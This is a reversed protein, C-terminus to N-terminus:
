RFVCYPKSSDATTNSETAIKREYDDILKAFSIPMIKKSPITMGQLALPSICQWSIANKAEFGENPYQAGENKEFVFTYRIQNYTM